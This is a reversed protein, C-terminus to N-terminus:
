SVLRSDFARTLEGRDFSAAQALVLAAPASLYARGGRRTTLVEVVMRATLMDKIRNKPTEGPLSSGGTFHILYPNWEETDERFIRFETWRCANCRYPRGTVPNLGTPPKDTGEPHAHPHHKPSRSASVGLYAGTIEILEDGVRLTWTGSTGVRNDIDM